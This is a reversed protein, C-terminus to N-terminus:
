RPFTNSRGVVVEEVEVPRADPAPLEDNKGMAKLAIGMTRVHDAHRLQHVPVTPVGKGPVVTGAGALGVALQPHIMVAADIVQVTDNLVRQRAPGVIRDGQDSETEAAVQGQHVQSAHSAFQVPPYLPRHGKRYGAVQLCTRQFQCLRLVAQVHLLEEDRKVFLDLLLHLLHGASYVVVVVVAYSVELTKVVPIGRRDVAELVGLIVPEFAAASPEEMGDGHRGKEHICQVIREECRATIGHGLRLLAPINMKFHRTGAAM